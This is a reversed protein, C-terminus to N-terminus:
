LELADGKIIVNTAFSIASLKTKLCIDVASDLIAAKSVVLPIGTRVCKLAMGRSIRGSILLFVKRFNVGNKLGTGIVKDVANHRGVDYARTVLGNKNVLAAIHYGRTRKYEETDLYKLSEHAEDLNFKEEATIKPFEEKERFIGICGSSRLTIAPVDRKVKVMVVKGDKLCPANNIEIENLDSAFGESILFGLVLENIKEPTCMVHHAIDNIVITIQDERAIELANGLEIIM